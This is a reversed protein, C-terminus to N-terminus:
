GTTCEQLVQAYAQLMQDFSPMQSYRARSRAGYHQRIQPNEAMTVLHQSLLGDDGPDYFLADQPDPIQENVGFVPTSIIPLGFALAELIVRPYSEVLSCLMFVDAALYYRGIETTSDLFTIHTLDNDELQRAQRILQRAYRRSADGVFVLRIPSKIRHVIRKLARIADAQGKRECLTGVCLFVTEAASWGFVQREALKNAKDQQAFRSLNLSNHIVAFHAAHEFEKWVARTADAVFVVKRPLGIAAIARQAVDDPLFRFHDCWPESERPNWVSPTGSAEAALVVPFSMLTNAFVLDPRSHKIRSALINIAIDLRKITSINDLPNAIVSVAIGEFEYDARLPGEEYAIIEPVINHNNKLGCVLEKLSISAGEHNLNHSFVLLKLTGGRAPVSHCSAVNLESRLVAPKPVAGRLGFLLRFQHAFWVFDGAILRQSVRFFIATIM